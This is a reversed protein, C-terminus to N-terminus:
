KKYASKIMPTSYIKLLEKMEDTSAFDSALRNQKTPISLNSHKELLVEVVKLQNWKIAIHLPTWGNEDPENVNAKNKILLKVIDVHGHKSAIHLPTWNDNIKENVNANNKILEKVIDLSKNYRAAMHLATWGENTKEDVNTVSLGGSLSNNELLEIVINLHGNFVAHHLPVWGNKRKNLDVGNAILQQLEKVNGTRSCTHIDM